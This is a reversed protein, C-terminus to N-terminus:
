TKKNTYFGERDTPKNKRYVVKISLGREFAQVEPVHSGQLGWRQLSQENLFDDAEGFLTTVTTELCRVEKEGLM